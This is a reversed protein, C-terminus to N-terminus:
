RRKAKGGTKAKADPTEASKNMQSLYVSDLAQIMTVYTEREEYDSVEYMVFYALIESLAIPGVVGMGLQRSASLVHFARYYDAM